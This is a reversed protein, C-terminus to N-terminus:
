LSVDEVIFTAAWRMAKRAVALPMGADDVANALDRILAKPGDYTGASICSRWDDKFRIGKRRDERLKVLAGLSVDVGTLWYDVNAATRDERLKVRERRPIKLNPRHAWPLPRVDRVDRADAVFGDNYAYEATASEDAKVAKPWHLFRVPCRKADMKHRSYLLAKFDSGSVARYELSVGPRAAIGELVAPLPMSGTVVIHADYTYQPSRTLVQCRRVPGLQRGIATILQQTTEPTQCGTATIVLQTDGILGHRFRHAASDIWYHRCPECDGEVNNCPLDIRCAGDRVSIVVKASDRGINPCDYIGRRPIEVFTDEDALTDLRPYPYPQPTTRVGITSEVDAGIIGTRYARDVGNEDPDIWGFAIKDKRNLTDGWQELLEGDSELERGALLGDNAVSALPATTSINM